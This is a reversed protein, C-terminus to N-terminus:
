EAAKLSAMHSQLKPAVQEAFLRMSRRHLDPRDWDKHTLLLTGFWGVEDVLAVLRDVVTAPKGHVVMWEVCRPYTVDGDPVDEHPKFIKLLNYAALNDRLYSYYWGYSCRPDALYDRAEQDSETVLISRAVRWLSRDPRRGAQEAGLCYQQWHTRAHGAPMFNASVLGWGREGATRATASHPRMASVALPPYPKQYPKRM